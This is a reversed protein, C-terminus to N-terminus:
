LWALLGLYFGLESAQQVAGLCDGTYGGLKREFVRRMVLHGLCLGALGLLLAPVGLGWGLAPLLALATAGAIRLSARSVGDAVPKATGHDRVYRSSAIVLVASFRSLAHAGILALVVTMAPMAALAAAKLALALLLAVTGYTGIRSDKMIELARERTLGGGVGDFMDALGDEHFAGTLAIGAAICLLVAVAPPWVLAALAYVGAAVGGILAGILPYYRTAATLREPTFVDSAPVPVRTLFQVGLLFIAWEERLPAQRM